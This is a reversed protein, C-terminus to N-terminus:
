FIYNIGIDIHEGLKNSGTMLETIGSKLSLSMAIGKWINMMYGIGICGDIMGLEEYMCGTSLFFGNFADSPWYCVEARFGDKKLEASPRATENLLSNHLKEEQSIREKVPFCKWACGEASWHKTFAYGAEISLTHRFTACTINVGTRAAGRLPQSYAEVWTCLSLLLM